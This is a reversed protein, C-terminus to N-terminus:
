VSVSLDERVIAPTDDLEVNVPLFTSAATDFHIIFSDDTLEFDHVDSVTVTGLYTRGDPDLRWEATIVTTFLDSNHELLKAHHMHAIINQRAMTKYYISLVGTKRELTMYKYGNAKAISSHNDRVKTFLVDTIQKSTVTSSKDSVVTIQVTDLIANLPLNTNAAEGTDINILTTIHVM